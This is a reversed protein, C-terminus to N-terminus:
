HITDRLENEIKEMIEGALSENALYASEILTMAAQMALPLTFDVHFEEGDRASFDMRVTGEDTEYISLKTDGM